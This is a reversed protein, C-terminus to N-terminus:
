VKAVLVVIRQWLQHYLSKSMFEVWREDSADALATVVTGHRTTQM